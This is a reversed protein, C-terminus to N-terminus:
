NLNIQLSNEIYNNLVWRAQKAKDSDVFYEDYRYCLWLYLSIEKVTDEIHLLDALSDAVSNKMEPMEYRVLENKELSVIYRKYAKVVYPSNLSVPASALKFKMELDLKYKDVIKSARLMNELSVADFPGNFEMYKVFFKLISELSEEELISGILQIQQMNAMVKLPLKISEIESNFRSEVVKLVDSDLAGVFGVEHIGYRGARGSIQAVESALLERRKIGDFKDAKYFLINKIPLNLGMAIADTAVLIQTKGDRFRRAEERRVEPSLNGYVVSVSFNQSFRKKLKLVDKRSFAIIATADEVESDKTISENLYLSNKREFEVIELEEGLYEALAIIADKSNPSGTMIVEHAPVGIIANAWAWGRDRDDIMQVEDIVCVDVDIGFNLMEITSSIHTAEDDVIEEEGTILSACVGKEKLEEYGELALLRLPALYCGTDAERLREMAKYTKGSNTPGIHLTLKRRMGRALPFLNEFDRVTKALLEERYQKEVNTKLSKIFLKIIKQEVGDSVGLNFKIRHLLFEYITEYIEEDTVDLVLAYTKCRKIIRNFVELFKFEQIEKTYQILEKIELDKGKWIENLIYNMDSDVYLVYEFPKDLYPLTIDTQVQVRLKTKFVEFKKFEVGDTVIRRLYKEKIKPYKIDKVDTLQLSEIIEKYNLYRHPTKVNSVFNDIFKQQQVILNKKEALVENVINQIDEQKINNLKYERTKLIEDKQITINFIHYEVTKNFEFRNNSYSNVDCIDVVSTILIDKRLVTLQHKVKGLTINPTKKNKFLPYIEDREYDLMELENFLSNIKLDVEFPVAIKKDNEYVVNRKTFFDVIDQRRKITGNCWIHRAYSFVKKEEIEKDIGVSKFLELLTSIDVRIIGDNYPTEDFYKLIEKNLKKRKVKTILDIKM